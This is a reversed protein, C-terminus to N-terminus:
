LYPCTLKLVRTWILSMFKWFMLASFKHSIHVFDLNFFRGSLEFDTCDLGTNTNICVYTQPGNVGVDELSYLYKKVNMSSKHRKIIM